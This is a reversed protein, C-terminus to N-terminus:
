RLIDSIRHLKACRLGVLEAECTVQILRRMHTTQLAPMGFALHGARPTVCNVPGRRGENRLFRCLHVRLARGTVHTRPRLELSRVRVPYRLTRHRTDVAMVRVSRKSGLLNPRESGHVPSGANDCRYVHAMQM